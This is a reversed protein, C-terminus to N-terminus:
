EILPNTFTYDFLCNFEGLPITISKNLINPITYAANSTGNTTSITYLATGFNLFVLGLPQYTAAPMIAPKRINIENDVGTSFTM